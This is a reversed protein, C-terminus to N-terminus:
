RVRRDTYAPKGLAGAAYLAAAQLPTQVEYATLPTIADENAPDRRANEDPLPDLAPIKDDLAGHAILHVFKGNTLLLNLEGYIVTRLPDRGRRRNIKSMVQSAYIAQIQDASFRWRARGSSVRWGRGGSITRALPDIVIRNLRRGARILNSLAVGALLVACALGLYPLFEPRPLAISGALSKVSLVVFVGSWIIYWGARLIKARGWAPSLRFELADPSAGNRRDREIHSLTWLDLRIPLPPLPPPPPPQSVAQLQDQRPPILTFPRQLRRALTRGAEAALENHQDGTPDPWHALECWRSSRAQALAPALILGLHWSEDKASWGLVVREIEHLALQGSIPLRRQSGFTSVYRMPQNDAAEALVTDGADSHLLLVWRDPQIEIRLNGAAYIRDM